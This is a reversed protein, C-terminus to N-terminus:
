TETKTEDLNNETSLINKYTYLLKVVNKLLKKISKFFKLALLEIKEYFRNIFTNIKRTIATIKVIIYSLIPYIIKSISIRFLIFGLFQSVIVYGRVEGNTRAILFVFTVLAYFVWLLLDGITVALVSNFWVKRVARM